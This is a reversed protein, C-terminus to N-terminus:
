YRIGLNLNFRPAVKIDDEAFYFQAFERLPLTEGGSGGLNGFRQYGTVPNNNIFDSFSLYFYHGLDGNIQRLDSRTGIFDGGFKLSHRGHISSFNEQLQGLNSNILSPRTDMGLTILSGAAPFGSSPSNAFGSSVPDNVNSITVAPLERAKPDANLPGRQSSIRSFSFRLENLARDFAHTWSSGFNQTREALITRWQPLLGLDSYAVQSPNSFVGVPAKLDDILYRFFLNERQGVKQDLRAAGEHDRFDSVNARPVVYTGFPITPCQSPTALCDVGPPAWTASGTTCPNTSPLKGASNPINGCPSNLSFPLTSVTPDALFTTLTPSHITSDMSQLISLGAPTPLTAVVPYEASLNNRAHDWQYSAFYWTSDKKIPGGVSAGLQSEYFQAPRTLGSQKEVKAMANFGDNQGYWFLSGHLQNGGQRTIVNVISGSNRGYEAAFQGTLIRFESFIESNSFQTAAGGFLPENNDVSDIIFNNDRGRSGNVSFPVLTNAFSFSSVSVVGPALPALNNIDRASLPLEQLQPGAFATSLTPRDSDTMALDLANVEVTTTGAPAVKLTIDDVRAVQALGLQLGAAPTAVVNYGDKSVKLEYLGPPVERLEYRGQDDTFVFRGQGTALNTIRVEAQPVPGTPDKVVGFFTGGISQGLAPSELLAVLIFLPVFSLRLTKPFM